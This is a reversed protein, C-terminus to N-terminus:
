RVLEGGYEAVMGIGALSVPVGAAFSAVNVVVEPVQIGLFGAVDRLLNAVFASNAALVHDLGLLLVVVGIMMWFVDMSTESFYEALAM